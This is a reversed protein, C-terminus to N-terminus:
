RSWREGRARRDALCGLCLYRRYESGALRYVTVVVIPFVYGHSLTGCDACKVATV